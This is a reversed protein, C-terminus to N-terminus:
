YTASPDGRVRRYQVTYFLLAGGVPSGIENIFPQEEGGDVVVALGNLQIDTEMIAQIQPVLEDKKDALGTPAEFLIKLGLPFECTRGRTDRSVESEDGDYIMLSPMVQSSKVPDLERTISAFVQADLLGQFNALIRTFIQSKISANM